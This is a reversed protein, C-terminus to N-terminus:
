PAQLAPAVARIDEVWIYGNFSAPIKAFERTDGLGENLKGREYPGFVIVRAGVSEMRAILRDPWGWYIWQYNIPIALVSDRCSEPIIGTWGSLVYDKTCSRAERKLDFSWNDPLLERMRKVPREAGYFADGLKASDRGYARLTAFLRDAECPNKSKFNFLIPADPLAALGEEVTPMKGVGKGRLPFSKGGDATYGYGIDLAKLQALTLNRTDGKGDTRCDVTWDHFLVMHGDKTPAIDVEVMTAGLEIAWRMSEPTNEFVEHTPPFAHAATCTDAGFAARKDYLHYVGRHAILKPAGVPDPALWSANSLVLWAVFVALAVLFIRSGHRVSRKPSDEHGVIQAEIKTRAM